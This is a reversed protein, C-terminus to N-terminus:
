SNKEILHNFKKLKSSSRGTKYRGLMTKLTKLHKKNNNHNNKHFLSKDNRLRLQHIKDQSWWWESTGDRQGTVERCKEKEQSIIFCSYGSPLFPVRLGLRPYSLQPQKEFSVLAVDLKLFCNFTIPFPATHIYSPFLTWVSCYTYFTSCYLWTCLTPLSHLPPFHPWLPLQTRALKAHNKAKSFFPPGNPLKLCLLSM